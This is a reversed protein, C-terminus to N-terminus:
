IDPIQWDVPEKGSQKLAENIKSFPRSGFFGAKAALPSPHVGEIIHHKQEDILKRKKKAYDGGLVFVIGELSDSIHSIVSDTFTEWGKNKHSAATGARVTLVANLLLVGQHAWHLLYGNNPIKCGLDTQLEKYINKLSPPVRVGPLVSFSLGHAQGPGHYPDQGLILVKVHAYPTLHLAAFVEPEPPYVPGRSREGAVFARLEGFYPKALEDRLVPNWDTRAM